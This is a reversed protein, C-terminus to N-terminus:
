SNLQLTLPFHNEFFNTYKLLLPNENIAFDIVLPILAISFTEVFVLIINLAIFIIISKKNNESLLHIFKKM